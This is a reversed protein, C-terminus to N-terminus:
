KKFLSLTAKTLRYKQKSSTPKDPSSMEIYGASIAPELFYRRLKYLSDTHIERLLEGATVSERSLKLFTKVIDSILLSRDAKAKEWVQLYVQSILNLLAPKIFDIDKAKPSYVQLDTNELGVDILIELEIAYPSEAQKTVVTRESSEIM